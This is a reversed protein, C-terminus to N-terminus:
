GVGEQQSRIENAVVAQGGNIQVNQHQVVITQKGSNRVRHLTEYGKFGALSIKTRGWDIVTNNLDDNETM